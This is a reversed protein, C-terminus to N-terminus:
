DVKSLRAMVRDYESPSFLCIDSSILFFQTVGDDLVVIKHYIRDHVGTSKRAGYGLLNQADAPTIDVKVVAARFRAATVQGALQLGSILSIVLLGSTRVILKFLRNTSSKIENLM